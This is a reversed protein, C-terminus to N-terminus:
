HPRLASHGRPIKIRTVDSIDIMSSRKNSDGDLTARGFRSGQFIAIGAGAPGGEAPILITLGSVRLGIRCDWRATPRGPHSPTRSRFRAGAARDSAKSSGHLLLYRPCSVSPNCSRLMARPDRTPVIDISPRSPNFDPIQLAAVVGNNPRQGGEMRPSADAVGFRKAGCSPPLCHCRACYFIACRVLL